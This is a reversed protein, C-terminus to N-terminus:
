EIYKNHVIKLLFDISEKFNTCSTYFLFTKYADATKPPTPIALRKIRDPRGAGYNQAAYTATVVGSTIGQVFGIILFSICGTAGVSALADVGLTQGATVTDAM